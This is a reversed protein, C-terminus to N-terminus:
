PKRITKLAALARMRAVHHQVIRKPYTKGPATWPEHLYADPVDRLAPVWRRIYTGDPDFKRGQSVPNFIRFFPAADAGCARTWSPTDPAATRGHRSAVPITDGPSPGTHNACRNPRRRRFM